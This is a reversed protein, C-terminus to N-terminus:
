ISAAQHCVFVAGDATAEAGVAVLVAVGSLSEQIAGMVSILQM